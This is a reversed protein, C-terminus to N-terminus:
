FIFKGDELLELAKQCESKFFPGSKVGGKRLGRLGKAPNYTNNFPDRVLITDEETQGAKLDFYSELECSARHDIIKNASVNVM